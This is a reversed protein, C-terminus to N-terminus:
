ALLERHQASIRGPDREDFIHRNCSFLGTERLGKAAIAATDSKLYAKGIMETIRYHTVVTNSQNKLWIEVEQAHHTKLPQM